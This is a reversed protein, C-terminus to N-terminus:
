AGRVEPCVADRWQRVVLGGASDPGPQDLHGAQACGTQYSNRRAIHQYFKKKVEISRSGVWTVQIIILEPTYDIGPDGEEPYIIEDPTARVADRCRSRM